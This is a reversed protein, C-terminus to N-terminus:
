YAPEKSYYDPERKQALKTKIKGLGQEIQDSLETKMDPVFDQSQKKKLWLPM